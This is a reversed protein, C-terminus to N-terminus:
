ADAEGLRAEAETLLEAYGEVVVAADSLDLAADSLNGAADAVAEPEGGEANTRLADAAGRVHELAREVGVLMVPGAKPELTPAAIPETAGLWTELRLVAHAVARALPGNDRISGLLALAILVSAGGGGPARLPRVFVSAPRPAAGEFARRMLAPPLIVRVDVRGREPEVPEVLVTVLGDGRDDAAQERAHFERMFATSRRCRGCTTETLSATVHLGKIREQSGLGCAVGSRWRLHVKDCGRSRPRM